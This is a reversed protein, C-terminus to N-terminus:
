LVPEDLRHRRDRDEIEVVWLDPDTRLRQDILADARAEDVPEPGTARIWARGGDLSMTPELVTCGAEFRNIKILIGGAAGDGRRRLFAPIDHAFCRRIHAKVWIESKLRPQM